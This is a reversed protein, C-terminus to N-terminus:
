KKLANRLAGRSRIYSTVGLGLASSGVLGNIITEPGTSPLESNTHTSLIHGNCAEDDAPKYNAAESEKVSIIKGITADCVPVMTIVERCDRLERSHKTSDFDSKKIEKIEKTELVCVWIMDPKPSEKCANLDMSYKSSDFDSEKIHKIDHTALECVWIMKVVPPKLYVLADDCQRNGNNVDTAEVCATNKIDGAQYRPVKATIEFEKYAGAPLSVTATWTGDKVVGESAKIFTVGDPQTDTVVAKVVDVKSTNTLRVQYTFVQDVGVLTREVNNVKKIITLNPKEEPPVTFSVVCDAGARDGVSTKVVVRAVYTDAKSFTMEGSNAKLDSTTVTKTAVIADRGDTVTFVYGTIQAGHETTAVADFSFKNRAIVQKTLSKCSATPQPTPTGTVPNGCSKIVAGSFAGNADFFVYAELQDSQFSVAPTRQYYTKGDIMVATSGAMTNRGVTVAHTAVVEDGVVVEGTKTVYGSKITGSTGKVEASSVSYHAFVAPVDGRYKDRLETLSYTGCKIIANDDCDRGDTARAFSTGMVAVVSVVAIAASAAIMRFKKHM